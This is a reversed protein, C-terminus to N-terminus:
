RILLLENFYNYKKLLFARAAAATQYVEPGM